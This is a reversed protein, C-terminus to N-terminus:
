VGIVERNHRNSGPEPYKLFFGESFDSPNQKKYNFRKSLNFVSKKLSIETVYHAAKKEKIFFPLNFFILIGAKLAPM